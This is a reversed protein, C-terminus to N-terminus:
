PPPLCCHAVAATLVIGQIAALTQALLASPRSHWGRCSRAPRWAVYRAAGMALVWPGVIPRRLRQPCSHPLRRGGHRLAGGRQPRGPVGRSGADLGDLVLAVVALGVLTATSTPPRSCRCGFGNRWRRACSSYSDRNAPGLTAPGSRSLGYSLVGATTLGCGTGVLWGALSLGVTGALVSLLALQGALGVVPGIQVTPM